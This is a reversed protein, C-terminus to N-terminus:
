VDDYKGEKKKKKNESKNNNQIWINIHYQSSSRYDKDIIKNGGLSISDVATSMLMDNNGFDNIIANAYGCIQTKLAQVCVFEDKCLVLMDYLKIKGENEKVRGKDDMVNEPKNSKDNELMQELDRYPM